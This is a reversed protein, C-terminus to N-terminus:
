AIINSEKLEEIIATIENNHSTHGASTSAVLLRLRNVLENPDNWYMIMNSCTKDLGNAKKLDLNILGLGTHLDATTSNKRLIRKVPQASRKVQQMFETVRRQRNVKGSSTPFPIEGPSQHKKRETAEDQIVFPSSFLTSPRKREERRM